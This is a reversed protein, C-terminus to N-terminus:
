LAPISEIGDQVYLLCTCSFWEIFPTVLFLLNRSNLKDTTLTLSVWITEVRMM